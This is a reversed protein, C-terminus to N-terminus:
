MFYNFFERITIIFFLQKKRKQESMNKENNLVHLNLTEQRETVFRDISQIWLSYALTKHGHTHLFRCAVPRRFNVFRCDYRRIRDLSPYANIDCM